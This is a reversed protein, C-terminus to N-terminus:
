PASTAAWEVVGVGDPSLGVEPEVRDGSARLPGAGRGLVVRIKDDPGILEPAMRVSVATVPPEATIFLVRATGSRGLRWQVLEGDDPQVALAPAAGASAALQRVFAELGPQRERRYGLGPFSGLAIVTGRGLPRRVAVVDGASSTALVEADKTGLAELWGAVPLDFSQPGYAVTM